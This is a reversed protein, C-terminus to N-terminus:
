AGEVVIMNGKSASQRLAMPGEYEASAHWAKAQEMSPFKIVVARPFPWDGELVEMPGGRVVFEGGYKELIPPVQEAYTKYTEPDTVELQVIIYASM